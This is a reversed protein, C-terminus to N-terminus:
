YNGVHGDAFLLNRLRHFPPVEIQGGGQLAFSNGDCDYAVPVETINFDLRRAFWTEDLVRGSLSANYTYSTGALEHVYGGDGPCLYVRGEESMQQDIAAPLGPDDPFITLFPDPMYRAVPFRDGNDNQHAKIAVGIQRLNSSCTTKITTRRMSSLAPLLIGILLGIIMVVVLLEILTFGGRKEVRRM